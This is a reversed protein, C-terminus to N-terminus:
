GEELRKKAYDRAQNDGCKYVIPSIAVAVLQGMAELNEESEGNKAVGVVISAMLSFALAYLFPTITRRTIAYYLGYFPIWAQAFARGWGTDKQRLQWAHRKSEEPSHKITQQANM